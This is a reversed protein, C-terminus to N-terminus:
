PMKKGRVVSSSLEQCVCLPHLDKTLDTIQVSKAGDQVRQINEWCPYSIAKM